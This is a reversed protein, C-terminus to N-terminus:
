LNKLLRMLPKTEEYKRATDFLYKLTLPIDKLYEKKGDRVYLRAFIGLIKIHRQIGMFDFWKIFTDDDVDLGKKDRFYLALKDIEEEEFEIYCDKLLSVLDYTIAGSMADQYDIIGIEEEDTLMLNRSHFDRHVFVNQPQSLVVASIKDLTTAIVEKQEPALIKRLLKKFYWEEMLNMEQHLFERDYLPLGTTDATQNKIIEDIANKYHSQFNDYDLVDLYHTNGFDEIILYGAELNKYLIKPANTDVDLLRSTVDIFPDLTDKELSSDMLLVSEDGNSLRYYKRFSADESAVTLTYEKYPTTELWKKIKDMFEVWSQIKKAGTVSSLEVVENHVRKYAFWAFAMAELFDGSVGIDDSKLVKYPLLEKIRQMLFANKIGGGCIIVLDIDRKLLDNTISLASLELLTRQIDKPSLRYSELYSELWKNNFYERGTSKPATKKFYEDSLMANLLRKNLVGSRAFEGDRDFSRNQSKQMWYDLLVNGCGSDWGLLTEGLLTINAMGGINVIASKKSLSGFIFKHFAPAFPAGQGGNAIDMNRFDSVVKLNTKASVVSPSGLQMSFPYNSDPAHWLTQAHLGVAVIDKTTYRERMVNIADGFLNGLRVDLEGVEKLTVSGEIFALVDKKLQEDYPYELSDILTCEFIDIACLVIDISDLSTGSMVGIYFEKKLTKSLGAIHKMM